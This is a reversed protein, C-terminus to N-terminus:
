RPRALRNNRRAERAARPRRERGSRWVNRRLRVLARVAWSPLELPPYRRRAKAGSVESRGRHRHQSREVYSPEASKTDANNLEKEIIFAIHCKTACLACRM